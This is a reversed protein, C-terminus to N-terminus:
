VMRRRIGVRVIVGVIMVGAVAALVLWWSPESPQIQSFNAAFTKGSGMTVTTTASDPDAVDGSWSDFQWGNDPIATITVETGEDYNHTGVSPTTSGNGTVKVTMTHMIQSFNATIKNNCTMVISAPNDSGSLDGSWGDFSYGSAPVAELRASTGSEFDSTFPYSSPITQEIHVAGSGSPKVDM